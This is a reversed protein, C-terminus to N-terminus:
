APKSTTMFLPMYKIFAGITVIANITPNTNEPTPLDLALAFRRLSGPGDINIEWTIDKFTCIWRKDTVTEGWTKEIFPKEFHVNHTVILDADNFMKEIKQHDFTAEKLHSLYGDCFLVLLDLSLPNKPKQYGHYSNIITPERIGSPDISVLILAIEIVEDTDAHLGNTETDLFLAYMKERDVTNRGRDSNSSNDIIGIKDLLTAYNSTKFDIKM